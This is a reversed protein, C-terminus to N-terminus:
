HLTRSLAYGYLQLDNNESKWRLKGYPGNIIWGEEELEDLAINEDTWERAMYNPINTVLSWIGEVYDLWGYLM